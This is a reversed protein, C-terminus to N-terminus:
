LKVLVNVRQENNMTASLRDFQVERTGLWEEVVRIINKSWLLGISDNNEWAGQVCELLQDDYYFWVHRYDSYYFIQLKSKEYSKM